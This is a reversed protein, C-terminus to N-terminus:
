IFLHTVPNIIEISLIECDANNVSHKCTKFTLSNHIFVCIGGGAGSSRAQHICAYNPLHLVNNEKRCWTETLCIIKFKFKIEQLLLKFSDFNKNASRINLNLISFKESNSNSLFASAESLSLFKSKLKNFDSSNLDPDFDDNLSLNSFCFNDTM